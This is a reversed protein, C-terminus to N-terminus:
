MITNVDKLDFRGFCEHRAAIDARVSPVRMYVVSQLWKYLQTFQPTSSLVFVGLRRFPLLPANSGPNERNQTRCVVASSGLEVSILTM